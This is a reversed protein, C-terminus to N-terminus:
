EYWGLAFRQALEIGTHHLGVAQKM